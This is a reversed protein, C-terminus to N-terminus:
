DKRLTVRGFIARHILEFPWGWWPIYVERLPILYKKDGHWIISKPYNKLDRSRLWWRTKCPPLGIGQEYDMIVESTQAM